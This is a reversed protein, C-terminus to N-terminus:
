ARGSPKLRTRQAPPGDPQDLGSPADSADASPVGQPDASGFLAIATRAVQQTDYWAYAAVGAAGIVPVWRSVAKALTRQSVKLGVITLVRQIVEISARHVLWREGSRVALDRAVQAASHRFLCFIMHERSLAAQQGHLTALDAVLQAQIRWVALLEPLLTLWGLPGPPLALSGAAMAAKRAAQRSLVHGRARAADRATVLSGPPPVESSRPVKAVLDMLAEAIRHAAKHQTDDEGGGEPLDGAGRSAAEDRGM